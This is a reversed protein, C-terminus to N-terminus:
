DELKHVRNGGDEEWCYKCVGWFEEKPDSGGCKICRDKELAELEHFCNICTDKLKSWQNINRITQCCRTCIFRPNKNRRNAWDEEVM